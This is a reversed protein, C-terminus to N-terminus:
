SALRRTSIRFINELNDYDSKQCRQPDCRWYCKRSLIGVSEGLGCKCSGGCSGGLGGSTGLRLGYQGGRGICAGRGDDCWRRFRNIGAVAARRIIRRFGNDNADDAGLGVFDDVGACGVNKERDVVVRQGFASVAYVDDDIVVVGDGQVIQSRGEGELFQRLAALGNADESNLGIAMRKGIGFREGHHAKVHAFLIKLVECRGGRRVQRHVKGDGAYDVDFVATANPEVETRGVDRERGLTIFNMVFDVVDFSGNGLGFSNEPFPHFRSAIFEDGFEDIGVVSRDDADEVLDVACEIYASRDFGQRCLRIRRNRILFWGCGILLWAARQGCVLFSFLRM